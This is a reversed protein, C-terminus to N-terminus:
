AYVAQHYRICEVLYQGYIDDELHENEPCEMEVLLEAHRETDGSLSHTFPSYDLSVPGDKKFRVDTDGYLSDVYRATHLNNETVNEHMDNLMACLVRFLAAAHSMLSLFVLDLACIMIVAFTMVFVQLVIVIEFQPSKDIEFPLWVVYILNEVSNGETVNNGNKFNYLPNSNLFPAVIWTFSISLGVPYLFLSFLLIDREANSIFKMYKSKLKAVFESRLIDVLSLFKKRNRLFHISSIMSALLGTMAAMTTAVVPIDGWHIVVATFEFVVTLAYFVHMSVTFTKYILKIFSSSKAPPLLGVVNLSVLITMVKPEWKSIHEESKFTDNTESVRSEKKKSGIMKNKNFHPVFGTLVSM